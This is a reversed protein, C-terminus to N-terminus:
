LAPIVPLPIRAGFGRRRKGFGLAHAIKSATHWGANKFAGSVVRRKRATDYLSKAGHKISDWLGTSAGGRRRHKKHSLGRPFRSRGRRGM